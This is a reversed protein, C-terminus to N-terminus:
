SPKATFLASDECSGAATDRSADLVGQLPRGPTIGGVVSVHIAGITQNMAFQAGGTDPRIRIKM